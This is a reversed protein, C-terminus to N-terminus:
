PMKPDNLNEAFLRNFHPQRDFFSGGYCFIGKSITLNSYYTKYSKEFEFTDSM